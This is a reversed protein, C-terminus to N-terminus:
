RAALESYLDSYRKAVTDLSFVKKVKRRANRGLGLALEPNDAIAQMADALSQPSGPSVLVGDTDRELVDVTGSVESAICTLEMSMAELLVNSLGEGRSPLILCHASQYAEKICDSYPLFEVHSDVGLDRAMGPYDWDPYKWGYIRLHIRSGMGRDLLIKVAQVAVDIGKQPTLRGVLIFHVQGGDPFPRNRKFRSTDVGNPIHFIRGPPFGWEILEDRVERSIAVMADTQWLIRLAWPFWKFKSLVSFDGFEGACAIKIISKKRLWRAAVTAVVAHGFCMHSHIVDYSNRNKIFHRFLPGTDLDVRYAFPFTCRHVEVGGITEHPQSGEIKLPTLVQIKHGLEVLKCALREAQLEAGSAIPRFQHIVMLTSPKM